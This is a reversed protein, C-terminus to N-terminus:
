RPRRGSSPSRSPRSGPTRTRAPISGRSGAPSRAGTARSAKPREAAGTPPLSVLPLERFALVVEMRQLPVLRELLDTPAALVTAVFRALEHDLEAAEAPDLADKLWLQDLRTRANLAYHADLLPLQDLTKIQYPKGDIAVFYETALTSLALLQHPHAPPPAPPRTSAM